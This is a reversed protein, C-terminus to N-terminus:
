TRCSCMRWTPGFRISTAAPRGAKLCQERQACGPGVRDANVPFPQTPSTAMQADQKVAREEIPLLPKGTERDLLFFYGDTRAVAIGKRPRGGVVDDDQRVPGTSVDHEWIDHHM